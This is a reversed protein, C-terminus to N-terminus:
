TYAFWTSLEALYSNSRNTPSGWVTGSQARSIKTKILNL